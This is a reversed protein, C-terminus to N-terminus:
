EPSRGVTISVLSTLVFPSPTSAQFRDIFSSHELVRAQSTLRTHGEALRHIMLWLALPPLMSCTLPVRCSQKNRYGRGLFFLSVLFM